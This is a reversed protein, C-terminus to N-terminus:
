IGDVFSQVKVDLKRYRAKWEKAETETKALQSQLVLTQEEKLNQQAQLREIQQSAEQKENEKRAVQKKLLEIEQRSATKEQAKTELLRKLIAIEQRYALTEEERLGLLIRKHEEFEMMFPDMMNESVYTAQISTLTAPTNGSQLHSSKHRKNTDIGELLMLRANFYRSIRVTSTEQSQAILM